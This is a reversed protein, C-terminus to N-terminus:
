SAAGAEDDPISGRARLFVDQLIDEADSEDAVRKRIFNRLRAREFEAVESIRQDQEVTM